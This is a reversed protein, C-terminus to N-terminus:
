TAYCEAARLFVNLLLLLFLLSLPLVAIVLCVEYFMGWKSGCAAPTCVCQDKGIQITPAAPRPPPVWPVGRYPWADHHAATHSWYLVSSPLTQPLPRMQRYMDYGVNCWLLVLFVYFSCVNDKVRASLSVILINSERLSTAQLVCRMSPHSRSGAGTTMYNRITFDAGDCANKLSFIDGGGTHHYWSASITHISM